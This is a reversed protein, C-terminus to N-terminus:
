MLMLPRELYDSLSREQQAARVAQLGRELWGPDRAGSRPARCM